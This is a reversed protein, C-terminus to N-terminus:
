RGGERKEYVSRLWAALEDMDTAIRRRGDGAGMTDPHGCDLYAMLMDRVAQAAAELKGAAALCAKRHAADARAQQKKDRESLWDDGTMSLQGRQQSARWHADQDPTAPHNM